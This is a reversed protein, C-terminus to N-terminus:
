VCANGANMFESSCISIGSIRELIYPERVVNERSHSNLNHNEPNYYWTTEHIAVATESFDAAELRQFSSPLM